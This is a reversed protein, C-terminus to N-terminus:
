RCNGTKKKRQGCREVLYGMFGVVFISLLFCSLFLALFWYWAFVNFQRRLIIMAACTFAGGLLLPVFLYFPGKCLSKNM